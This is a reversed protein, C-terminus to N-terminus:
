REGGSLSELAEALRRDETLLELTPIERQAMVYTALHLADLTRLLPQPTIREAMACVAPSLEWVECRAWLEEVERRLENVGSAPIENLQEARILARATEVRSLRSTILISAERIRREVEPTTGTELLARLVASTDLYLADAM